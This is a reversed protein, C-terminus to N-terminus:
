RHKHRVGGYQELNFENTAVGTIISCSKRILRIVKMRNTVLDNHYKLRLTSEGNQENLSRAILISTRGNEATSLLLGGERQLM